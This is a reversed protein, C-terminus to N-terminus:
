SGVVETQLAQKSVQFFFHSFMFILLTAVTVGRRPHHSVRVCVSSLFFCNPSHIKEWFLNGKDERGERGLVLMKEGDRWREREERWKEVREMEEFFSDKEQRELSPRHIIYPTQAFTSAAAAAAAAAAPPPLGWIYFEREREREIEEM